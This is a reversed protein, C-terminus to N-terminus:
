IIKRKIRTNAVLDAIPGIGDKLNDPLKNPALFEGAKCKLLPVYKDQPIM